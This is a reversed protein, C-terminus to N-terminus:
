LLCWGLDTPNEPFQMLRSPLYTPVCPWHLRLCATGGSVDDLPVNRQVMLRIPRGNFVGDPLVWKWPLRLTISWFGDGRHFEAGAGFVQGADAVGM